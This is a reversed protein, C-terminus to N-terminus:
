QMKNEHGQSVYEEHMNKFNIVNHQMLYVDDHDLTQFEMSHTTSPTDSFQCLVM